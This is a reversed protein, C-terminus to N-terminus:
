GEEITMQPDAPARPVLEIVGDCRPAIVGADELHGLADVVDQVPLRVLHALRSESMRPELAGRRVWETILDATARARKEHNTM